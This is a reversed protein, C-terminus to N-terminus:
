SFDGHQMKYGWFKNMKYRSIQVKQGGEVAGWVGGGLWWNKKILKTKKKRRPEM